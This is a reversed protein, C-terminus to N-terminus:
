AVEYNTQLAKQGEKVVRLQAILYNRWCSRAFCHIVIQWKAQGVSYCFLKFELLNADSSPRKEKNNHALLMDFYFTTQLEKTQFCYYQHSQAKGHQHDGQAELWRFSNLVQLVRPHFRGLLHIIATIFSLEM